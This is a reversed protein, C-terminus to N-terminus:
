LARRLYAVLGLKGSKAPIVSTGALQWGNLGYSNLTKEVNEWCLSDSVQGKKNPDFRGNKNGTAVVLDVVKHEYREM